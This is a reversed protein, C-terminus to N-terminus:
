ANYVPGTYSRLCAIAAAREVDPVYTTGRARLFAAVDFGVPGEVFGIAEADAARAAAVVRTLGAWHIAGACMICPACTTVLTCGPLTHTGRLATARRIALLEAHASPDGAVLVMNVAVALVRRQEDAVLAGFPGSGHRIGATVADLTQRMLAGDNM